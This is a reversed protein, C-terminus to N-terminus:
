KQFFFLVSLFNIKNQDFRFCWIKNKNLTLTSDEARPWVGQPLDVFHKGLVQKIV